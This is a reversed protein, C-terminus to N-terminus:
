LDKKGESKAVVKAYPESPQKSAPVSSTTAKAAPYKAHLYIAASVLVIACRHFFLFTFSSYYCCSAVSCQFLM